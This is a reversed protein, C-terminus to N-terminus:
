GGNSNSTLRPDFLVGFFGWNATDTGQYDRAPSRVVADHREVRVVVLVRLWVGRSGADVLSRLRQAGNARGCAVQSYCSRSCRCGAGVSEQRAAPISRAKM